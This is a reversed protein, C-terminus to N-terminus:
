SAEMASDSDKAPAPPAPRNRKAAYLAEDAVRYLGDLDADSGPPLDAFGASVTVPHNDMERLLQPDTQLHRLCQGVRSQCDPGAFLIAFEDGGLRVLCANGPLNKICIEVLRRLIHDGFHHGYTDNIYKFNDIDLLALELDHGSTHGDKVLNVFEKELFRRNWAGTLPDTMSIMEQQEHAAQLHFRTEIDHKRVRVNRAVLAWAIASSALFLFQLTWLTQAPFRGAVSLTSVTFLGYILLSLGIAEKLGWPVLPIAIVLLVSSAMLAINFDGMQHAVLTIATGSMILYAMALLHLTRTEKVVRASILVHVSLAALICFTYFYRQGQGVRAQLAWTGAQLLLLLAAMIMLGFRTDPLILGRAYQSIEETAFQTASWLQKLIERVQMEKAAEIAV